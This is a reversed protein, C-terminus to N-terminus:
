VDDLFEAEEDPDRNLSGLRKCAKDIAQDLRSRRKPLPSLTTFPSALYDAPQDVQMLSIDDELQGLQARLSSHPCPTFAVIVRNPNIQSSILSLCLIHHM